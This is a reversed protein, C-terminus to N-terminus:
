KRGTRMGMKTKLYEWTQKKLGLTRHKLVWTQCKLEKNRNRAAGNISRFVLHKTCKTSRFGWIKATCGQWGKQPQNFVWVSVYVCMYNCIYNCIYNCSIVIYIHMCTCVYLVYMYLSFIVLWKSEEVGGDLSQSITVQTCQRPPSCLHHINLDVM